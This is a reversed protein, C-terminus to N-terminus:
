VNVTVELSAKPNTEDGDAGDFAMTGLVFGVRGVIVDAVAPRSDFTFCVAAPKM